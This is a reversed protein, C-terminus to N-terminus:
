PDRTWSYRIECQALRVTPDEDTDDPVDPGRQSGITDFESNPADARRQCVAEVADILEVVIDNADVASYTAADGTYDGEADQARATALLTGTRNQGPGDSTMFDYTSEGGSTENSYQVVLSPYVAGVNDITRAVPLFAEDGPTVGDIAYGRADSPQWEGLLVADIFHQAPKDPLSLAM